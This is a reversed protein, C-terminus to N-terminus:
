IGYKAFAELSESLASYQNCLKEIEQAFFKTASHEEIIHWQDEISVGKLSPVAQVTLAIISYFKEKADEIEQKKNIIELRIENINM